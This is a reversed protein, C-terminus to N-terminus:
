RVNEGRRANAPQETSRAPVRGRGGGHRGQERRNQRGGRGDYHHDPGRVM